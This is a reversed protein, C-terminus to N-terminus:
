LLAKVLCYLGALIGLGPVVQLAFITMALQRRNQRGLATGGAEIILLLSLSFFIIKFSGWAAPIEWLQRWSSNWATKVVRLSSQGGDPLYIAIGLLGVGLLILTILPCASLKETRMLLKKSNYATKL